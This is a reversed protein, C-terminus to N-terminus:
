RTVGQRRAERVSRLHGAYQDIAAQYARPGPVMATGEWSCGCTPQRAGDGRARMILGHPKLAAVADEVPTSM